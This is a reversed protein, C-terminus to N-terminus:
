LELTLYSVAYVKNKGNGVVLEFQEPNMGLGEECFIVLIIVM